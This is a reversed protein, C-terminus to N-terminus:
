LYRDDYGKPIRHRPTVHRNRRARRILFIPSIIVAAICSVMWIWFTATMIVNISPAMAQSLPGGWLIVLVVLIILGVFFAIIDRMLVGKGGRPLEKTAQYAPYWMNSM